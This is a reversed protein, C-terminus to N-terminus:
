SAIMRRGKGESSDTAALVLEEQMEASADSRLPTPRRLTPIGGGLEELRWRLEPDATDRATATVANMLGFRSSDGESAFHGLISQMVQTRIRPALHALMPMMNLMTDTADATRAARMEGARAMFVDDACCAQVTERISAIADEPTPFEDATIRRSELAHAWIAGNRCVLRYVYPHVWVETEGARLAVGGQVKDHPRVQELRPLVSRAFLRRGDDFADLVTGGATQVETAFAEYIDSTTLWDHYSM